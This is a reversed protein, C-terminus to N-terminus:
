GLTAMRDKVEQVALTKASAYDTFPLEIDHQEAFNVAAPISEEAIKPLAKYARKSFYVLGFGIGVVAVVSLLVGLVKSKGFSLFNLAFYGFLGTLVLTALHLWGIMVLLVAMIVYSTRASTTM